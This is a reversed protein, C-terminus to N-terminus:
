RGASTGSSPSASGSRFASGCETVRRLNLADISARLHCDVANLAIEDHGIM